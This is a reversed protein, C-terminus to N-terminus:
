HCCRRSFRATTFALFASSFAACFATFCRWSARFFSCALCSFRLGGTIEKGLGFFSFLSRTSFSRWFLRNSPGTVPSRGGMANSSAASLCPAFPKEESVSSLMDRRSSILSRSKLTSAWTSFTSGPGTTVRKSIWGAGPTFTLRIVLKAFSKARERATTLTRTTSTIGPLVTTPISIGLSSRSIM